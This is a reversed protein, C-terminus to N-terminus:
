LGRNWRCLTKKEDYLPCAACLNRQAQLREECSGCLAASLWAGLAEREGTSLRQSIPQYLDRLATARSVGIARAAESPRYARENVLHQVFLDRLAPLYVRSHQNCPLFYGEPRASEM